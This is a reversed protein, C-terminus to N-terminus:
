QEALQTMGIHSQLQTVQITAKADDILKYSWTDKNNGDSIGFVDATFFPRIDTHTTFQNHM